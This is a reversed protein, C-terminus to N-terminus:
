PTKCPATSGRVVLQTPLMHKRPAVNAQNLIEILLTAAERGIDGMPQAITTLPPDSFRAFRIDDFGVVSIDEPVRLGRTKIARLAGIAMEDNACFIATFPV